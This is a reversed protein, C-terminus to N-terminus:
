AVQGRPPMSDGQPIQEIACAEQLTFLSVWIPCLPQLELLIKGNVGFTNALSAQVGVGPMATSPTQYTGSSWPNMDPTIKGGFLCKAIDPSIKPQQLQPLAAGPPNLGPISSLM